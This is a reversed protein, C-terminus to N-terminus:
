SSASFNRKGDSMFDHGISILTGNAGSDSALPM